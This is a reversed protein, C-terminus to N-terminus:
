YDVVEAAVSRPHSKQITTEKKKGEPTKGKKKRGHLVEPKQQRLEEATFQVLPEEAGAERYMGPIDDEGAGAWIGKGTLHDTYETTTSTTTTVTTAYKVACPKMDSRVDPLSASRNKFAHCANAFECEDCPAEIKGQICTENYEKRCLDGVPGNEHDHWQYPHEFEEEQEPTLNDLYDRYWSCSELVKTTEFYCEPIPTRPDQQSQQQGKGEKKYLALLESLSRPAGPLLARRASSVSKRSSPELVGQNRARLRWSEAPPVLALLQLALCVLRVGPRSMMRGADSHREGRGHLLPGVHAGEEDSQFLGSKM